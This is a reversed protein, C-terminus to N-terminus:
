AVKSAARKLRISELSDLMKKIVFSIQDISSCKDVVADYLHSNPKDIMARKGPLILEVSLFQAPAQELDWIKGLKYKTLIPSATEGGHHYSDTRLCSQGPKLKLSSANGDSTLFSIESIRGDIQEYMEQVLSFLDLPAPLTIGTVSRVYQDVLYQQRESESRPLVSLDVTLVLLSESPIVMITNFCQTVDRTKCKIEGGNAQLQLGADSLHSADLEIIDTYFAKSTVITTDIQKDNVVNTVTELYHIDSDAVLLQERSLPIPYAQTFISQDQHQAALSSQIKLLIKPEIRYLKVLRTGSLVLDQWVTNVVGEINKIGEDDTVQELRNIFPDLGVATLGFKPGLLKKVTKWGLRETIDRLTQTTQEHM